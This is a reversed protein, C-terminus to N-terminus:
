GPRTPAAARRAHWASLLLGGACLLEAVVLCVRSGIAAVTAAPVPLVSGLAAIIVLERVGAGDPLVLTLAGAASAFAYGGVAAALAPGAPAGLAFALLWLHLGGVLWAATQVLVAQRLLRPEPRDALPARRLLRAARDTLRLVTEPRWLVYAGLLLPVVLWPWSAGLVLPAALLGVATASLLNIVAVLLYAAVVRGADVGTRRGTHAAALAQWWPGPLYTGAIAAFCIRAGTAFGLPSGLSALVRRWTQVGLLLWAALALLALVLCWKAAPRALLGAIEAGHGAVVTAAGVAVAALFVAVLVKRLVARVPGTM